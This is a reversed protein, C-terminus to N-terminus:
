NKDLGAADIKVPVALSGLHGNHNDRAVCKLEYSGPALDVYGSVVFGHISLDAVAAPKLTGAAERVFETVPRGDSQKAVVAFSLNMSSDSEAIFDATPPVFLVFKVRQKAPDKVSPEQGNLKVELPLSTFELPSGIAGLVDSYAVKAADPIPPRLYYGSRARIKVDNRNTSVQISRWTEKKVSPSAYYGVLYYDQSDENARKLCDDLDSDRLCLSGGTAEAFQELRTVENVPRKLASRVRTGPETFAPNSMDSIDLPYVAINSDNLLRWTRQLYEDTRVGADSLIMMSDTKHGM